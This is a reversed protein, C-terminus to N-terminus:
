FLSLALWIRMGAFLAAVNRAFVTWSLYSRMTLFGKRKLLVKKLKKEKKPNVFKPFPLKTFADNTQVTQKVSHFLILIIKFSVLKNVM